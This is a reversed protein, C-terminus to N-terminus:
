CLPYTTLPDGCHSFLFFFFLVTCRRGRQRASIALMMDYFDFDFYIPPPCPEPDLRVPGM